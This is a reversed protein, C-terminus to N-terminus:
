RRAAHACQCASGATAHSTGRAAARRACRDSGGRAAGGVRRDTDSRADAASQSPDLDICVGASMPHELSFGRMWGWLPAQEPSTVSGIDNVCQAGRTAVMVRAGAADGRSASRMIELPITETLQTVLETAAADSATGPGVDLAWLYIIRTDGPYRARFASVQASVDDAATMDGRHMVVTPAGSVGLATALQDGVGGSDAFVLVPRPEDPVVAARAILLSQRPEVGTDTPANMARAEVFGAAHLLETWQRQGILPHAPRLEHDTFRWWGDTLGFTLDVWRLAITGELVLLLAGPAALQRVHGVTRQLDATAHLVNSAIIVDFSGVDFGQALPDREIDLLRCELMGNVGFRERARELFLPSLDTFVYRSGTPLQNLVYATTGGTGAGIELVRLPTASRAAIETALVDRLAGNYTRAFASDRYLRDLGDFSGGPFLLQLPDETGRMVAALRPGCRELLDMEGSGLSRARAFASPDPLAIPSLDAAVLSAMRRALRWHQPLVERLADDSLTSGAATLGLADLAERAYTSSAAELIPTVIDDNAFDTEAGIERLRATAVEALAPLPAPKGIPAQEWALRYVLSDPADGATTAALVLVLEDFSALLLGDSDLLRMSGSWPAGDESPTISAQVWAVRALDGHVSVSGIRALMRAPGQEVGVSFQPSAVGLVQLAGDLLAARHEGVALSPAVALRAVAEGDRRWIERITRVSDGLTIGRGSFTEYMVDLPLSELQDTLQAPAIAAPALPRLVARVARARTHKTWAGDADIGTATSSLM